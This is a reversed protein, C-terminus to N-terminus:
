APPQARLPQIIQAAGQVAQQIEPPIHGPFPQGAAQALAAQMVHTLRRQSELGLPFLRSPLNGIGPLPPALGPVLCRRLEEDLRPSLIGGFAELWRQIEGPLADDQEIATPDLISTRAYLHRLEDPTCGLRAAAELALAALHSSAPQRRACLRIIENEARKRLDLDQEAM